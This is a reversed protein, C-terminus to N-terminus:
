NSGASRRMGAMAMASAGWKEMRDVGLCPAKERWARQGWGHHGKEGGGGDRVLVGERRRGWIQLSMEVMTVPQLSRRGAM